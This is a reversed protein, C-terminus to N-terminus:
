QQDSLRGSKRIEEIEVNGAKYLEVGLKNRDPNGVVIMNGTKKVEKNVIRFSIGLESGTQTLDNIAVRIAEDELQTDSVILAWVDQAAVQGSLLLIIMGTTIAVVKKM